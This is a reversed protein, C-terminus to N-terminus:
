REEEKTTKLTVEVRMRDNELVTTVPEIPAPPQTNSGIVYRQWAEADGYFIDFDLNGSYGELRGDSCFQWAGVLGDTQPTEGPDYDLAPSVIDPYSAIWRMCNQDVGGQNFRWPNGYIWPHIYALEYIRATFRNVWDVPPSSVLVPQEYLDEWDLIPIGQGFYNRTNRYFYDAEQIPDNRADGFHYFGWPKGAAILTQVFVDCYADVFDVGQTAKCICFDIQHLHNSIKFGASGQYNSIDIGRM